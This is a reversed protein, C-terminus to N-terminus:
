SQGELADLLADCLTLIRAERPRMLANLHLRSPPLGRASDIREINETAEDRWNRVQEVFSPGGPAIADEPEDDCLCPDGHHCIKRM